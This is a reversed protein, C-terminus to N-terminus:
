TVTRQTVKCLDSARTSGQHQTPLIFGSLLGPHPSCPAQSVSLGEEAGEPLCPGESSTAEHSPPQPIRAEIQPEAVPRSPSTQDKM